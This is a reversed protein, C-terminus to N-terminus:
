RASLQDFNDARISLRGPEPQDPIMRRPWATHANNADTRELGLQLIDDEDFAGTPLDIMAVWRDGMIRTQVRPIGINPRSGSDFVVRGDPTITWVAAPATYPGTWLTLSENPSHPDPTTLEFYLQWGTTPNSRSPPATRRLIGVATRSPLPTAGSLPRNNVLSDMTWDNLLPGIRVYPARAPTPSAIAQRTTSWRGTRVRIPQSELVPNSPALEIPDIPITIPTAIDPSLTALEPSTGAIGTPADVRLLSAGPSQPMSLATITPLFRGTEAEIQGQDDTIWALARPQADLWANARLVRTRDDIYPSLLDHALRAVETTDSAWVPLIRDDFRATRMLQSKLRHAVDPDILWIRGLIIQWRAESLRALERLLDAGPTDMSLELDLADLSQDISTATDRARARDPHLGDVLLRARWNQLPDRHYQDIATQVAPDSLADSHLHFSWFSDLDNGQTHKGAELSVREPDPLWNLEYREGDIWLGQGVADIPLPVRIFWAGIPRQALAVKAITAYPSATWIGPSATWGSQARDPSIGVWYALSTLIRGDDLKTTVGSRLDRENDPLVAIVLPYSVIADLRDSAPRISQAFAGEILTAVCISVILFRHFPSSTM